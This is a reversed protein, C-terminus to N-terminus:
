EKTRVDIRAPGTSDVSGRVAVELVGEHFSAEVDDESVGEPLTIERRFQGHARERVLFDEHEDDTGRAGAITLTGRSLSVDVDGPEVGPLECRILIDSGKALIDTTPTWADTHGRPQEPVTTAGDAGTMRDAIRNMESVTDVVGRFPNRGAHKKRRIAM